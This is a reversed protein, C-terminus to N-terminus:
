ELCREVLKGGWGWEYCIDLVAIDDDYYVTRGYNLSHASGLLSNWSVKM